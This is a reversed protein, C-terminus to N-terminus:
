PRSSIATRAGSPTATPTGTLDLVLQDRSAEGFLAPTPTRFTLTVTRRNDGM